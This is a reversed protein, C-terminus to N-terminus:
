QYSIYWKKSETKERLCKVETQTREGHLAATNVRIVQRQIRARAQKQTVIREIKILYQTSYHLYKESSIINLDGMTQNLYEIIAEECQM